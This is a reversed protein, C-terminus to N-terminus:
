LSVSHPHFGPPLTKKHKSSRTTMGLSNDWQQKPLLAQYDPHPRGQSVSDLTTHLTHTYKTSLAPVLHSGGPPPRLQLLPRAVPLRHVPPHSHPCTKPSPNRHFAVLFLLKDVALPSTGDPSTKTNQLPLLYYLLTLSLLPDNYITKFCGNILLPPSAGWKTSASSLLTHLGRESM